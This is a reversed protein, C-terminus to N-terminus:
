LNERKGRKYYGTNKYKVKEIEKIKESLKTNNPNIIYAKKYYQNARLLDGLKEYMLAMKILVEYNEGYGNEFATNYFYLAKTYERRRYYYEGLYFNTRANKKDIKLANFFYGKAFTNNNELDYIRAMQVMYYLNQPEVRTLIFYEGSAKHLLDQREKEDSVKEAQDFYYDARNLVAPKDIVTYDIIAENYKITGFEVAFVSSGITLMVFVLVTRLAHKYIKTHHFLM